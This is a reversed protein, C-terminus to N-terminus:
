KGKKGIKNSVSCLAGVTGLRDFAQFAVFRSLTDCEIAVSQRMRDSDVRDSDGKGVFFFSVARVVLDM